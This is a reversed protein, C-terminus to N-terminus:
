EVQYELLTKEQRAKELEAQLKQSELLSQNEAQLKVITSQLETQAQHAEREAQSLEAKYMPPTTILATLSQGLTEQTALFKLL